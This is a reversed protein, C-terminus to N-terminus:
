KIGKIEFVMVGEARGRIPLKGLQRMHVQDSIRKAFAETVLIQGAQAVEQVRQAINVTDGIATYNMAQAAGVYGVVADGVHLGIGFRLGGGREDNAETVRRQLDIATQVARLVHDPQSTPTNFLAMVADGLFKDLTGEHSFIVDAALSFYENLLEVVQEPPAKESFTTYGRLDAFFATIERRVGGLEIANPDTLVRDVISPAVFREFAQRISNKEDEKRRGLAEYHSANEYAIAAYDSLASLLGADHRTFIRAELSLNKVVLAGVAQNALVLPTAMAASPASPNIRRAESIEQASMVVPALAHIAQIALPDDRIEDLAHTRQESQRRIAKCVLEDNDSVLYLSVEECSTLQAAAEVVRGLLDQMNMLATVSKGVNYLVGLERVRQNMEANARILRETLLEKERRLRSESLSRQIADYMEEVTYPKKVYDKVGLRYVDIAIEESGHFTMLIVPIELQEARMAQLVELGNMQPMQLDLLILDPHHQRAMQLGEMGDRAILAEFGNPKLVYEVIFDRNEKGDDVILIREASM